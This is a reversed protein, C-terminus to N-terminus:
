PTPNPTEWLDENGAGTVPQDILPDAASVPIDLFRIIPDPLLQSAQLAEEKKDQEEDQRIKDRPQAIVEDLFDFNVEPPPPVFCTSGFVCGNSFSGPDFGGTLSLQGYVTTGTAFGAGNALRGNISVQAPANGTAQITFSNATYGRRDDRNSTNAGSNQIALLRGVNAAIRAAQFYGGDNAAGDNTALRDHLGALTLNAAATRAAASMAYIQQANLRLTGTLAGGSDRIALSGTEAALSIDANPADLVVTQNASFGAFQVAGVVGISRASRLTLTGNPGIQNGNFTMADLVLTAAAPDVLTFAAGTPNAPAAAITIDGASGIRGIETSDLRWGTAGGAAGGVFSRDATSTLTLATTLTKSGLQGNAGIAIDGSTLAITAAGVTGNVALLGSARGTLGKGGSIQGLTITGNNSTLAIDGSPANAQALNLDGSAAALTLNGATASANNVKLGNAGTLTVTRATAATGGSARADTAVTIAGNAATLTAVGNVQYVPVTIDGGATLSLDSGTVIQGIAISGPVTIGTPNVVSGNFDVTRITQATLNNLTVGGGSFLDLTGPAAIQGAPGAISGSTAVRALSAGGTISVPGNLTLDSNLAELTLRSSAKISNSINTQGVTVSRARLLVDVADIGGNLRLTIAGYGSEGIRVINNVNAAGLCVSGELCPAALQGGDNSPTAGIAPANNIRVYLNSTALRSAPDAQVAGASMFITRDPAEVAANGNLLISAVEGPTRSGLNLGGALLRVQSVFNLPDVPSGYGTEPPANNAGRVLAGAGIVIDDGTVISVSTDAVLRAGPNVIADRSAQISIGGTTSIGSTVIADGSPVFGEGYGARISVTRAKLTDVTTSGLTTINISGGSVADGVHGAGNYSTINIFNSANLLSGSQADVNSYSTLSINPANLSFTAPTLRASHAVSVGNNGFASISSGASFGGGRQFDFLIRGPTRLEATDDVAIIRDSSRIVFDSAGLDSGNDGHAYLSGFHIGGGANSGQDSILLSGDYYGRAGVDVELFGIDAKGPGAPGDAVNLEFHGGFGSGFAGPPAFIVTGTVPDPAGPGGSGGFGPSATLSGLVQAFNAEAGTADFTASGARATGGDGGAGGSNGSASGTGGDGGSGAEANAFFAPPIVEGGGITAVNLRAGGSILLSTSGGNADGGKGGKGGFGSAAFSGGDGGDGAFASSDMMLSEGQGQDPITVAAANAFEISASGGTADGGNGGDLLEGFRGRGADASAASTVRYVDATGGSFRVMATGGTAAGGNGGKPGQGGDQGFGMASAFLNFGEVSSIDANTFVISADGGAGSGGNGGASTASSLFGYGTETVDGGIGGLGEARALVTDLTQNGGAIAISATGGTGAGGAGANAAQPPTRSPFDVVGGDGGTGSADAQLSAVTFLVNSTNVSAASGRAAGGAGAGTSVPTPANTTQADGGAGGNATAFLSVFNADIAGGTGTLYAGANAGFPNVGVGANGGTGAAGYGSEGFAGAGGFAETRIEITDASLQGGNLALEARGAFGAGAQNGYDGNAGRGTAALSLSALQVPGGTLNVLVSGGIGTGSNNHPVGPGLALPLNVRGEASLNLGNVQFASSPNNPDAANITFSIAGGRGTVSTLTTSYGAIGDANALISGEGTTLAAANNVFTISGGTGDKVAPGAGSSNDGAQGHVDLILNGDRTGILSGSASTVSITGGQGTSGGGSFGDGTASIAIGTSVLSGGTLNLTASGGTGNGGPKGFDGSSGDGSASVLLAGNTLVAGGSAIQIGVTGGVGSGGGGYGQEGHGDAAATLTGGAVIQGGGSATVQVTGGIGTGGVSNGDFSGQGGRGTSSLTIDNDATIIGGLALLNVAGGTGSTAGYGVDTDGFSTTSLTMSQAHITSGANSTVTFSSGGTRSPNFHDFTIAGTADINRGGQATMTIAGSTSLANLDGVISLAATSTDFNLNQASAKVTNGLRGGTVTITGRTDPTGAADSTVTSSTTLFITGNAAVAAAAPVYGVSGSVLMTVADNKPVAMMYVRRPQGGLAPDTINTSGSHTLTTEGGANVNSGVNVAIDFLNGAVPITLDVSEAAVLAASGNVTMTGGQNIRPAVLAIYNGAANIQAGSQVTVSARRDSAARFAITGTQSNANANTFLSNGVVIDNATLVLSGVDFRSTAGAIIGGPSYFWVSGGQAGGTFQGVVRGDFQIPRSPDAPVVRNLITYAGSVAAPDATFVLENGQPLISIAGGGTATDTPTWNIVAQRTNVTVTDRLGGTIVQGQVVNASGFATAPNAKFAQQAHGPTAIAAALACGALLRARHRLPLTRYASM